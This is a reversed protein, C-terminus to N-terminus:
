SRSPCVFRSRTRGGCNRSRLMDLSVRSVVTMLWGAISEIEDADVRHLRLWTEQVADDAKSVSGLM